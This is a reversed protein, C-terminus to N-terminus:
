VFLLFYSFFSHVCLGARRCRHMEDSEDSAGCPGSVAPRNPHSGRRFHMRRGYYATNKSRALCCRRIACRGAFPELHNRVYGLQSFCSKRPSVPVCPVPAGKHIVNADGGSHWQDGQRPRGCALAAIGRGPRGEVTHFSLRRRTACPCVPSISFLSSCNM